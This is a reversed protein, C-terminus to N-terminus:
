RVVSKRCAAIVGQVKTFPIYENHFPSISVLLTRLGQQRLLTLVAEASEIDKFWSSNTEVYEISIGSDAAVELVGALDDPRLMPEGGGIHISRCGVSRVMKLNAAAVHRDIFNKEWPPGCNYLCHRCRSTCFCNTIMGGSILHKIQFPQM